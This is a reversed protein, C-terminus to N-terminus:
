CTADLLAAYNARCEVVKPHMEDLAQEYVALARRYLAAAEDYWGGHKCLVALNNLTLAV